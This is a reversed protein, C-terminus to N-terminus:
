FADTVSRVFGVREVSSYWSGGAEADGHADRVHSHVAETLSEVYNDACLTWELDCGAVPCWATWCVESASWSVRSSAATALHSEFVERWAASRPHPGESIDWSISM